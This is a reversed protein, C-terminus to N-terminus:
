GMGRKAKVNFDITVTREDEKSEEPLPAVNTVRDLAAQVSRDVERNGSSREIRASIVRGNRAITVSVRATAENDTVGDPVLWAREYASQVARRFNAYPLGGGGPGFPVQIATRSSVGAGIAGATQEVREAMRREKAQNRTRQEARAKAENRRDPKRTVLETSIQPRKPKEETKTELSEPDTKTIRSAEPKAPKQEKEVEPEPKPDRHKIEPPPAPREAPPPQPVVAPAPSPQVIPKAPAVAPATKANADGGGSMLADITRYPVFDLPPSNDLTSKSTVFATGVFLIGFLLLHLGISVLVCKKQLRDM